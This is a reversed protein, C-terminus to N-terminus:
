DKNLTMSGSGAISGGDYLDFNITIQTPSGTGHFRVEDFGSPTGSGGITGDINFILSASGFVVSTTSVTFTTDDYTGTFTESPPDGAGFVNGDLDLSFTVTQNSENVSVDASAAGSLGWMTDQWTGTWSGQFDSAFHDGGGGGCIPSNQCGDDNCDFDGDGDNDAGDDCDGPETGEAGLGDPGDDCAGFVMGFVISLILLLRKM